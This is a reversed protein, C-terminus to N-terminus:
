PRVSRRRAVISPASKPRCSPSCWPRGLGRRRWGACAVAAASDVLIELAENARRLWAAVPGPQAFRLGGRCLGGDPQAAAAAHLASRRQESRGRIRDQGQRPHRDTPNQRHRAAAAGIAPWRARIAAGDGRAGCARQRAGAADVGDRGPRRPYARHLHADRGRQARGQRAVRLPGRAAAPLGSAPKDGRWRLTRHPLGLEGALKKVDRAERASAPRLGHDITVAFLEPGHKRSRRWRAALWMLALSDPGGSVALVIAPVNAWDAFLLKAQPVSIPRQEDDRMQIAPQQRILGFHDEFDSVFAGSRLGTMALLSVVFCDLDRARRKPNSRKARLSPSLGKGKLCAKLVEGAKARPGGGAEGRGFRPPIQLAVEGLAACAAEKEKLAALSQGLRLLADPAKASTEYKTTVALFAEASDRYQQRQFFSEGLWYQADGVLRDSPHKQTFGRMTEEALAYDKRQMYGIGLDFEDKPTQSPPATPPALGAAANPPAMAGGRPTNALDLPEGPHVDSRIAPPTPRCRCSDAASRARRAPRPPTRIRISRTAAVVGRPRLLPRPLRSRFSRRRSRIM